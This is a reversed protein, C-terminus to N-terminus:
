TALIRLKKRQKSRFYWFKFSADKIVKPPSVKVAKDVETALLSQLIGVGKYNLHVTDPTDAKITDRYRYLELYNPNHEKAFSPWFEVFHLFLDGADM